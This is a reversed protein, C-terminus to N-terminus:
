GGFDFETVNFGKPLPDASSTPEGGEPCLEPNIPRGPAFGPCSNPWPRDMASLSRVWASMSLHDSRRVCRAALRYRGVFTKEVFIECPEVFKRPSRTWFVDEGQQESLEPKYNGIEILGETCQGPAVIVYSEDAGKPPLAQAWATGTLSCAFVVLVLLAIRKFM